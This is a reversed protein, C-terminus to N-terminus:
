HTIIERIAMLFVEASPLAVLCLGAAMLGASLLSFGPRTRNQARWYQEFVMRVGFMRDADKYTRDRADPDAILSLADDLTKSHRTSRAVRVTDYVRELKHPVGDRVMAEVYDRPTVYHQISSPCRLWYVLLGLFVLVSGIYLQYVRDVSNSWINGGLEDFRMGFARFEDGLIVAYGLIPILSLLSPIRTRALRASWAWRPPWLRQENLWEPVGVAAPRVAPAEAPGIEAGETNRM